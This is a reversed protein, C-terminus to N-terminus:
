SGFKRWLQPYLRPLEDDSWQEGAPEAPSSASRWGKGARKTVADAVHYQFGEYFWTEPDIEAEALSDPDAHASEIADRGRSILSTRFDDFADDSCGGNIVYAAGWLRYDYARSRAAEFHRGFDLADSAALHEVEQKLLAGKSDMDDPSADHVKEIIKWFADENMGRLM